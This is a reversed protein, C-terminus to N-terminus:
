EIRFIIPLGMTFDRGRLMVPPKPLNKAALVKDLAARDLMEHGSSELLRADHVQGDAGIQALVMVRGEFGLELADSPYRQDEIIRATVAQSYDLIASRAAPDASPPSGGLAALSLGTAALAASLRGWM